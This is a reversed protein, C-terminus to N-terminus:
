DSPADQVTIDGGLLELYVPPFGSPADAPPCVDPFGCTARSSPDDGRLERSSAAQEPM